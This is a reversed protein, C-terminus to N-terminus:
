NYYTNNEKRAVEDIHDKILNYLKIEKENAEREVQSFDYFVYEKLHHHKFRFIGKQDDGKRYIYRFPLSENQLKYLRGCKPLTQEDINEPFILDQKSSKDLFQLIKKLIM